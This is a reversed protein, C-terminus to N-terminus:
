SLWEQIEASTKLGVLRSQEEGEETVLILTPVGRIGYEGSKKANKDIDVSEMPYPLEM